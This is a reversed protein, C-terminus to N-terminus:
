SRELIGMVREIFDEPIFPKDFIDVCGRRSLASTLDDNLHGSIVVTPVTIGREALEDILEVGNMGSMKIDTLLLDFPEDTKQASLLKELAEKGNQADVIEVGNNRLLLKIALRYLNEDDVVLVKKRDQVMTIVDM